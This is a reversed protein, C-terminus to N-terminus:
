SGCITGNLCSEKRYNELLLHYTLEPNRKVCITKNKHINMTTQPIGIVREGSRGSRRGTKFYCTFSAFSGGGFICYDKVGLFSSTQLEYGDGCVNTPLNNYTANVAKIDVIAGDNWESTEDKIAGTYTYSKQKQLVICIIMFVLNLIILSICSLWCGTLKREGRDM